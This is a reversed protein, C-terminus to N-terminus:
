RGLALKIVGISLISIVLSFIVQNSQILSTLTEWIFTSANSDIGINIDNVNVDNFKDLLENEKNKFNDFEDTNAEQKDEASIDGNIIEDMKENTQNQANIQGDLYENMQEQNKNQNDIIDSANKNQNDIINSTNQNNNNIIDDTANQLNDSTVNKNEKRDIKLSYSEQMLNVSSVGTSFVNLWLSSLDTGVMNVISIRMYNLDDEYGGSYFCTYNAGAGTSISCSNGWMYAQLVGTGASGSYYTTFTIDYLYNSDFTYMSYLWQVRNYGLGGYSDILGTGNSVPTDSNRYLFYQFRDAQTFEEAFVNIIPCLCFLTLFVPIILIM